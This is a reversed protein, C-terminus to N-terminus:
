GLRKSFEDQEMQTMITVEDINHPLKPDNSWELGFTRTMNDSALCHLWNKIELFKTLEPDSLHCISPDKPNIGFKEMLKQFAAKVNM